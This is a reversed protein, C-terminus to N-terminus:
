VSAVPILPLSMVLIERMKSTGPLIILVFNLKYGTPLGGGSAWNLTATPLIGTSNNAPSVINAPNPPVPDVYIEPGTVDDVYLRLKDASIAQIALYVIQGNYASIDYSYETYTDGPGVNSALVETFSTVENTTISLLVNFEDIWSTSGNKAWFSFTADGETPALRPSILWDDHATANYGISTCAVGTRYGSTYRVWANTGGGNIVTWGEPPFTTGEFGENLSLL